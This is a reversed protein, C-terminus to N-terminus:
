SDENVALVPRMIKRTLASSLLLGSAIAVAVLIVKTAVEMGELEEGRVLYTVAKYAMNGPVLPIIGPITIVLSPVSLIRALVEASMAVLVSGAFAAESESGGMLQLQAVLSFAIAAVLPSVILARRPLNFRVGLALTAIFIFIANM